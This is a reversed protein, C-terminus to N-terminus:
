RVEGQIYAPDNTLNNVVQAGSLVKGSKVLIQVTFGNPVNAPLPHQSPSLQRMKGGGLRVGALRDIESGNLDLYIIDYEAPGTGPNFFWFTTRYKADQRLGAMYQSKGVGAADADTLAMMTQGFRKSPVSNDYSEGQVVPFIGNPSDSELTVVGIGNTIGWKSAIVNVLRETERPQLTVTV